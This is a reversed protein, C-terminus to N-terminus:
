KQMLSDLLQNSNPKPVIEIPVPADVREKETADMEVVANGVVKWHRQPVGAVATLDPNILWETDPFDPTNVSRRYQGTAKNVVDAM